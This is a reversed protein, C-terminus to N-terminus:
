CVDGDIGYIMLDQLGTCKAGRVCTRDLVLNVIERGNACQGRVFNNAADEEGLDLQEPHFPQRCAPRKMAM